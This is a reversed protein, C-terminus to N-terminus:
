GAPPTQRQGALHRYWAGRWTTPGGRVRRAIEHTSRDARGRRAFGGWGSGASMWNGTRSSSRWGHGSMSAVCRPGGNAAPLTGTWCWCRFEPDRCLGRATRAISDGHFRAVLKRCPCLKRDAESRRRPGHRVERDRGCVSAPLNIGRAIAANGDRLQRDSSTSSPRREILATFAFLRPDSARFRRGKISRRAQVSPGGPAEASRAFGGGAWPGPRV